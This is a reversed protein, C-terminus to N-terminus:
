TWLETNLYKITAAEAEECKKIFLEEFPTLKRGNVLEDLLKALEEDSV